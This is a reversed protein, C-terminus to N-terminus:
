VYKRRNYRLKLIKLIIVFVLTVSNALIIAPDKRLIGYLLWLAIGISFGILMIWSFDAVSKTRY